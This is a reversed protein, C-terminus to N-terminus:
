NTPSLKQRTFLAEDNCVGPIQKKKMTKQCYKKETELLFSVSAVEHPEAVITALSTNRTLEHVL